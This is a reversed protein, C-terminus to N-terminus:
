VKEFDIVQLVLWNLFPVVRLSGLEISIFNLAQV